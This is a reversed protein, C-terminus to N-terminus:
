GAERVEILFANVRDSLISSQAALESTAQRTESAARGTESSADSIGNVNTSVDEMAAEQEGMSNSIESSMENVSKITDSVDHISGTTAKVERQITELRAAIEETAKATQQALAKVESAVVAFGRGAEGARAAEITANLALLNTQGAIDSITKSFGSIADASQNLGDISGEAMAVLDVAKQTMQSSTSIRSRIDRIALQCGEAARAVSASQAASAEAAAAVTESTAELEVAAHSVSTVVEKVNIEFLDAQENLVRHALKKAEDIYVSIAFDMDLFVAKNVAVITQQMRLLDQAYTQCILQQLHSTVFSYGGIYWRPDLGIRAHAEGIAVVSRVYDEDFRGSFVRDLWHTRQAERAHRVHAENRFLEALNPLSTLHAYFADLFRDINEELVPVFVKLAQSDEQGIASFGLRGALDAEKSEESRKVSVQVKVVEKNAKVPCGARLM